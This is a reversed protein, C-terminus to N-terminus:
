SLNRSRALEHRQPLDFEIDEAGPSALQAAITHHKIAIRRYDDFNLLVYAPGGQEIIFVPGNDAAKRAQDAHQKFEDDTITIIAM